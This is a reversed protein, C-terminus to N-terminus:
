LLNIIRYNLVDDDDDDDDDDDLFTSVQPM